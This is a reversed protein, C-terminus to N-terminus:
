IDTSRYPYCRATQVYVADKKRDLPEVHDPLGIVHLIEHAIVVEQDRMSYTFFLPTVYIKAGVPAAYAIVDDILPRPVYAIQWKGDTLKLLKRYQKSWRVKLSQCNAFMVVADTLADFTDQSHLVLPNDIADVSQGEPFMAGLGYGVALLALSATIGLVLTRTPTM